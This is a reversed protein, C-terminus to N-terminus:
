FFEITFLHVSSVAEQSYGFEEFWEIQYDLLQAITAKKNKFVSKKKNLKM